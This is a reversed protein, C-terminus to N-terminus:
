KQTLRRVTGEGGVLVEHTMGLFLGSCVIGARAALAGDLGRPNGIGQSFHCDLIVNGNDTM